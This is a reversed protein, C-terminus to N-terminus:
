WHPVNVLPTKFKWFSRAGAEYYYPDCNGLYILNDGPSTMSDSVVMATFSTSHSERIIPLNWYRIHLAQYSVENYWHQQSILKKHFKQAIFHRQFSATTRCNGNFHLPYIVAMNCPKLSTLIQRKIYSLLLLVRCISSLYIFVLLIYSM